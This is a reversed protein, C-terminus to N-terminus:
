CLLRMRSASSSSTMMAGFGFFCSRRPELSVALCAGFTSGTKEVSSRDYSNINTFLCYLYLLLCLYLYLDAVAAANRSTYRKISVTM